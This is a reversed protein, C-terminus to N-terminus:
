DIIYVKFERLKCDCTYNAVGSGEYVGNGLTWNRKQSEWSPGYEVRPFPTTARYHGGNLMVDLRDVSGADATVSYWGKVHAYDDFPLLPYSPIIIQEGSAATPSSTAGLMKWNTGAEASDQHTGRFALLGFAKSANFLSGVDFIVGSKSASRKVYVDMAIRWHHGFYVSGDNVIPHTLRSYGPCCYLKAESDYTASYAAGLSHQMKFRIGQVRDVWCGDVPADDANLWYALRGQSHASATIIRRRSTMLDVM